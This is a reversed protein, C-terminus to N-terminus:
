LVVFGLKVIVLNEVLAYDVGLLSHRDGSGMALM